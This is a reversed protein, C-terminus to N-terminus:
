FWKCAHDTVYTMGSGNAYGQGLRKGSKAFYFTATGDANKQIGYQQDFDVGEGGVLKKGTPDMHGQVLETPCNSTMNVAAHFKIGANCNTCVGADSTTGNVTWELVCDAGVGWHKSAQLKPNAFLYWRETGTVTNGNIAFKGVFYSDAGENGPGNACQGHALNSSLDPLGAGGTAANAVGAEAQPAEPAAQTAEPATHAAPAPSAEPAPAQSVPSSAACAVLLLLPLLKM